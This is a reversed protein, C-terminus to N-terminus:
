EIGYYVEYEQETIIAKYENSTNNSETNYLIKNKLVILDLVNIKNDNNIDGDGILLNQTGSLISRKLDLYDLGNIEGDNNVDNELIPIYKLTYKYTIEDLLQSTGAKYYKVTIDPFTLENKFTLENNRDILHININSLSNETNRCSTLTKFEESSQVYDYTLLIKTKEENLYLNDENFIKINGAVGDIILGMERGDFDIEIDCGGKIDNYHTPIFLINNSYRTTFTKNEDDAYFSTKELGDYFYQIFGLRNNVNKLDVSLTRNYIGPKDPFNVGNDCQQVNYASTQISILNTLCGLATLLGILKKNRM